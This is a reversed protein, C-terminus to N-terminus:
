SAVGPTSSNLFEPNDIALRATVGARLLELLHPDSHDARGDALRTCLERLLVNLPANMGLFSSLAEREAAEVSEGLALERSVLDLTKAAVRVEFGHAGSLQPALGALSERLCAILEDRTPRSSSM